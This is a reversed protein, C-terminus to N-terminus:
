WLAKYEDTSDYIHIKKIKSLVLLVYKIHNLKINETFITCVLPHKGGRVGARVV